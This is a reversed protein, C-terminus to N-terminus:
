RIYKPNPQKQTKTTYIEKLKNPFFNQNKKLGVQNFMWEQRFVSTFPVFLILLWWDLLVYWLSTVSSILLTLSDILNIQSDFWSALCILEHTLESRVQYITLKSGVRVQSKLKPALEKLFFWYLIFNFYIIILFKLYM